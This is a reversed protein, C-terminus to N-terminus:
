RSTPGPRRCILANVASMGSASLAVLRDIGTDTAPTAQAISPM